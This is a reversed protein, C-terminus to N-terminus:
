SHACPLLERSAKEGGAFEAPDVDKLLVLYQDLESTKLFASLKLSGSLGRTLCGKAGVAIQLSGGSGGRAKADSIVKQFGSFAQVDRPALQFFHVRQGSKMAKAIEPPVPQQPETALAYEQRVDMADTRSVLHVTLKADGEPFDLADPALLAVRLGSMDTKEMDIKSLQVMSGLPVHTCASLMLAGLVGIFSIGKM